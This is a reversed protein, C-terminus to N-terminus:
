ESWISPLRNNNNWIHTTLKWTGDSQKELIDVYNQSYPIRRGTAREEYVGNGVWRKIAFKEGVIIPEEEGDSVELIWTAFFNVAWDHVAKKGRVPDGGQPMWVAGDVIDAVYADAKAEATAATQFGEFRSNYMELIQDAATPAQATASTAILFLSILTIRTM